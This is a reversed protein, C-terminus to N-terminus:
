GLMRITNRRRVNHRSAIAHHVAPGEEHLHLGSESSYSIPRHLQISIKIYLVCLLVMPFVFFVITCIIVYYFFSSELPNHEYENFIYCIDSDPIVCNTTINVSSHYDLLEIDHNERNISIFKIKPITWTPVALVISVVWIFILTRIARKDGDLRYAKLPHCIAVYREVSLAVLTLVTSNSMRFFYFMKIECQFMSEIWYQIVSRIYLASHQM